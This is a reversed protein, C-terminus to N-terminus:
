RRRSGGYGRGWPPGDQSREAPRDFVVAVPGRGCRPCALAPLVGGSESARVTTDNWEEGCGLCRFRDGALEFRGGEIRIARGEVLGRVLKFRAAALMRQFTSQSIGMKEACSDQDLGELDKLRLAEFEEMTLVEEHLAAMPVGAPKFYRVYPIFAVNRPKPP